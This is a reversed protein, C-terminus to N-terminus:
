IFYITQPLNETMYTFFTTYDPYALERPTVLRRPRSTIRVESAASPATQRAASGSCLRCRLGEKASVSLTKRTMSGPICMVVIIWEESDM